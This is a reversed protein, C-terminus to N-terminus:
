LFGLILCVREQVQHLTAPPLHGLSRRFRRQSVARIQDCQLASRRDLGGEPPAIVVHSSLGRLTTTIPVVVALNAHHNVEDVSLVLAPRIKAQEPEEATEPKGFDVLWVQGRSIM